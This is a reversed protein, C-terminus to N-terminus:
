ESKRRALRQVWDRVATVVENTDFDIAARYPGAAVLEGIEGHLRPDDLKSQLFEVWAAGHLSAVEVRPSQSLAVRRLLASLDQLLRQRDGSRGYRAEIAQLERNARVQLARRRRRWLWYACGAAIAISVMLLGWWGPALPWWGIPAPLHIDRLPISAPDRPDM